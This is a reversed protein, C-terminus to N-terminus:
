DIKFKLGVIKPSAGGEILGYKSILYKTIPCASSEIGDMTKKNHFFYFYEEDSYIIKKTFSTKNPTSLIIKDDSKKSAICLYPEANNGAYTFSIHDRTDKVNTVCKYSDSLLMNYFNIMNLNDKYPLKNKLNRGEFDIYKAINIRGNDIEWICNESGVPNIYYKNECGQSVPSFDLVFDECLLGEAIKKGRKDFKHICYPNIDIESTILKASFIYFGGDRKDPIIADSRLAKGKWDLEISNLVKNTNYDFILVKNLGDLVLITNNKDNIAMNELTVCEDYGSGVGSLKTKFHGDKSFRYIADHTAIFIDGDPGIKFDSLESVGSVNSVDIDFVCESEIYGSVDFDDATYSRTGIHNRLLSLKKENYEKSAVFQAENEVRIVNYNSCQCCLTICILGLLIVKKMIEM